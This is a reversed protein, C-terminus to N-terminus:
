LASQHDAGSWDKDRAEMAPGSFLDVNTLTCKKLNTEPVCYM